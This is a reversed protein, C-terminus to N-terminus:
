LLGKIQALYYYICPTKNLSQWNHQIAINFKNIKNVLSSKLDIWIFSFLFTIALFLVIHISSDYGIIETIKSFQLFFSLLKQDSTYYM